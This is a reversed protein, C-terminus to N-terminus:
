DIKVAKFVSDTNFSQSPLPTIALAQYGSDINYICAWINSQSYYIPGAAFNLSSLAAKAKNIADDKSSAAIKAVLFAWAQQTDYSGLQIAGYSNDSLKQASIFTTQQISSVSPCKEPQPPIQFAWLPSALTTIALTFLLTFFKRM